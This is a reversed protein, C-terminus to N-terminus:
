LPLTIKFISGQGHKRKVVITGGHQEIINRALYLGVGAGEKSALVANSGRYFRKFIQHEEGEPIGIGDDEIEILVNQILPSVRIQVMSGTKSYKVANEILNTFAEAVWRRDLSLMFDKEMEVLLEINKTKATLFVHSVAERITDKLSYTKPQIQIMNHELRSLKVLEDLLAELKLIEKTEMDLFSRREEKSLDDSLSLDHSMRISALPTKLQHSIDTILSKTRHEEETLRTQMSSIDYELERLQEYIEEIIGYYFDPFDQVGTKYGNRMAYIKESLLHLESEMKEMQKKKLQRRYLYFGAFFLLEIFIILSMFWINEWVIKKHYYSLNEFLWKAQEPYLTSLEKIQINLLQKEYFLKGAFLGAPMLIALFSLVIKAIKPKSKRDM